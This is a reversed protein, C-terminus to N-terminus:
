NKSKKEVEHQRAEKKKTHVMQIKQWGRLYKRLYRLKNQWIEICTHRDKERQEM